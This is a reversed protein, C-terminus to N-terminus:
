MQATGAAAAVYVPFDLPEYTTKRDDPREAEVKVEFTFRMRYDATWEKRVLKNAHEKVMSIVDGGVKTGRPIVLINVPVSLPLTVQNAPPKPEDKAPSSSGEIKEKKEQEEGAM